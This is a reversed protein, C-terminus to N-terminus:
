RCRDVAFSGFVSDTLGIGDEPRNTKPRAGRLIGIRRPEAPVRRSVDGARGPLPDRANRRDRRQRRGPVLEQTRAGCPGVCSLLEPDPTAFDFIFNHSRLRSLVSTAVPGERPSPGEATAYVARTCM